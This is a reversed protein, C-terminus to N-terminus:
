ARRVQFNTILVAALVVLGRVINQAYSNVGFLVLANGLYSIFIVGLVTGLITGRGGSLLTGGIIVAAIVEFELGNGIASTGSGIRATLLVGVISSLVGTVALVTVQVRPVPLGAVLAAKANSGVAYIQRGLVTRASVLGFIVALIIFVLAPAPISFLSGSLVDKMLPYRVSIPSANTIYEAAGRLALFLALTVIISPVGLFARVAGAFVGIVLGNLLVLLVSLEIGWGLDRTFVGLLASTLAVQAGVSIDIEGSIIVWTMGLAIIGTFAAQRFVNLQNAWTLFNPALAAFLVFFILTAILLAFEHSRTNFKM